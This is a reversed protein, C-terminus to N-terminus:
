MQGEEARMLAWADWDGARRRSSKVQDIEDVRDTSCEGGVANRSPQTSDVSGGQVGVEVTMESFRSKLHNGGVFGLSTLDSTTSYVSDTMMSNSDMSSLSGISTGVPLRRATRRRQPLGNITRTSDFVGVSTEVNRTMENHSLADHAKMRETDKDQPVAVDAKDDHLPMAKGSAALKKQRGPTIPRSYNIPEHPPTPNSPRRAQDLRISAAEASAPRNSAKTPTKMPRVHEHPLVALGSPASPVPPAPRPSDWSGPSFPARPMPAPSSIDMARVKSFKRSFAQQLVDQLENVPKEFKHSASPNPGVKRLKIGKMETLFAGMDMARVGTSETTAMSAKRKPRPPTAKLSNRAEVLFDTQAKSKKRAGAIVTKRLAPPAPPAPPPPPPAPPPPGAGISASSPPATPRARAVTPGIPAPSAEQSSESARKAAMLEQQLKQIEEELKRIKRVSECEEQREDQAKSKMSAQQRAQEEQKRAQRWTTTIESANPGLVTNSPQPSQAPAQSTTPSTLQALNPFSASSPFDFHVHHHNPQRKHAQTASRRAPPARLTPTSRSVPLTSDM